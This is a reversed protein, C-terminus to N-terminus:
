RLGGPVGGIKRRAAVRDLHAGVGGLLQTSFLARRLYVHALCEWTNGIGGHVQIATECVARAARACYAKAIAAADLAEGPPLTDAAWAAHLAVSRSGEVSVHADALMHQVSQFSGIATGYQERVSAYSCALEVAGRMTGVLDACTLAVVFATWGEIDAPTLPTQVGSPRLAPPGAIGAAPRTLDRAPTAGDVPVTVLAHGGDAVALALASVGGHVDVATGSCPAGAGATVALGSLDPTLLVTEPEAAPPAAALRRLEAALTPGLFPADALGRGLEEAVIATEVASALPRDGDGPTRLERWGTAALATDLKAARATDGLEAVSKPGLDGALRAAADRLAQQEPSLRVDM